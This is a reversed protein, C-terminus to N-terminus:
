GSGGKRLYVDFRNAAGLLTFSPLPLAIIASALRPRKVVVRQKAVILAQELLRAADVDDGVVSRLALMQKKALATKAKGPFMPDLYVVDPYQGPPLEALITIADGVLAQMNAIAATTTLCGSSGARRLGDQLLAAIIPSREVLQVKCGLSALIFADTGLGATADIVTLQPSINKKFGVAKRIAEKTLNAPNTRYQLSKDLFDVCIPKIKPQSPVTLVLKDAAQQLIYM